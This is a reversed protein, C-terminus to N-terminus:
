REGRETSEVNYLICSHKLNFEAIDLGNPLYKTSLVFIKVGYLKRKFAKESRLIFTPSLVNTM